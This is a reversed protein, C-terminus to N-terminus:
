EGSRTHIIVESVRDTEGFEARDAQALRSLNSVAGAHPENDTFHV